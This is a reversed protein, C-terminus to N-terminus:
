KYDKVIVNYNRPYKIDTTKIKRQILITRRSNEIPLSYEIKEEIKYGLKQIIKNFKNLEDDVNSKLPVFIGNKKLVAISLESIIALNSVARCTVIDFIERNNKAYDEMRSNIVKVNHLDLQEKVMNLFTVKKNNSEILTVSINNFVIAIVMGPFGAGVGFDCLNLNDDLKVAKVICLSDYFHKLFIEKEELISTLNFKNNWEKLLDKYKNFKKLLEDTIIINIKKCENIFENNTM